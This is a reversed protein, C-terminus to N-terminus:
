RPNLPLIVASAGRAAPYAAIQRALDSRDARRLRVQERLAALRRGLTAPRLVPTTQLSSTMGGTQPGFLRQTWYRKRMVDM